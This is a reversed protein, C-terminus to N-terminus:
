YLRTCNVKNIYNNAESKGSKWRCYILNCALEDQIVQPSDDLSITSSRKAWCFWHLGEVAKPWVGVLHYLFKWIGKTFHEKALNKKTESLPSCSQNPSFLRRYLGCGSRSVITQYLRARKLLRDDKGYKNRGQGQIRLPISDSNPQNQQWYAINMPLLPSQSLPFGQNSQLEPPPEIRCHLSNRQALM